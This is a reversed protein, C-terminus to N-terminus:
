EKPAALIRPNSQYAQVLAQTLTEAGAEAPAILATVSLVAAARRFPRSRDM